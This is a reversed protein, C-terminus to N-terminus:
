ADSLSSSYTKNMVCMSTNSTTPCKEDRLLLLKDESGLCLSIKDFDEIEIIEERFHEM